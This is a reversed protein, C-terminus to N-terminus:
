LFYPFRDMMQQYFAELCIAVHRAADRSQRAQCTSMVLQAGGIKANGAGKSYQLTTHYTLPCTPMHGLTYLEGLLVITDM